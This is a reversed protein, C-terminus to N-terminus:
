QLYEIIDSVSNEFTTGVHTVDLNSNLSLLNSFSNEDGVFGIDAETNSIPDWIHADDSNVNTGIIVLVDSNQIIEGWKKQIAQITKNGVATPKNKMYYSMCPGAPRNQVTQQVQNPQVIEIPGDIMSRGVGFSIGGLRGTIGKLLFNCSGHLKLINFQDSSINDINYNVSLGAKSAALEALCDYNLTSYVFDINEQLLKQFLEVYHNELMGPRFRAFYSAIVANLVPANVKKSEMIEHMKMEFDHKNDDGVISSINSMIDPAFRELESYLQYGLPPSYPLVSGSGFSAGAGTLITTKAEAM